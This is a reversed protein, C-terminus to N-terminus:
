IRPQTRERPSWRYALASNRWYVKEAVGPGRTAIYAKAVAIVQDFTGVHESNPWDSGFMVRDEGFLEWLRDLKDKYANLDTVTVDNVKHVIETLKMYVLPRKALEALDRMYEGLAAPQDPFRAAPLHPVVLRLSPVKDLVRLLARPHPAIGLDLTLGADALLRLNAVFAPDDIAQDIAGGARQNRNSYRLGLFLRNRHFRELHRGFDPLGPDIFGVYGLVIADRAQDLIWQNEEVWPSAEVVIAGVIGSGQIVARYRAPLASVGPAPDDPRPYFTGGPKNRDFLHIHADVIPTQATGSQQLATGLWPVAAVLGLFERRELTKMRPM